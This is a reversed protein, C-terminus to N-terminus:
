GTSDRNRFPSDPRPGRRRSADTQRRRAKQSPGSGTRRAPAPRSGHGSSSLAFASGDTFIWQLGEAECATEEMADAIAERVQRAPRRRFGAGAVALAAVLALVIGAVVLRRPAYDRPMVHFAFYAFVALSLSAASASLVAGLAQMFPAHVAASSVLAWDGRAASSVAACVIDEGAAGAGAHGTLTFGSIQGQQTRFRIRIM